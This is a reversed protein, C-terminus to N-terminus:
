FQRQRSKAALIHRREGLSAAGGLYEKGNIALLARQNKMQTRMMLVVNQGLFDRPLTRANEKTM